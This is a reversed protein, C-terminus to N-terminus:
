NDDCMKNSRLALTANGDAGFRDTKLHVIYLLGFIRAPITGGADARRKKQIHKRCGCGVWADIFQIVPPRRTRGGMCRYIYVHISMQAMTTMMTMSNHISRNTGAPDMLRVFSVVDAAASATATRIDTAPM